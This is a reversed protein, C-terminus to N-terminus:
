HFIHSPVANAPVKYGAPTLHLHDGYAPLLRLPDAADQEADSGSSTVRIRSSTM